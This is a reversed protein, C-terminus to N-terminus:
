ARCVAMAESQANAKTVGISWGFGPTGAKRDIAVAACQDKFYAILACLSKTSEPADRNARCKDLANSYATQTDDYNSAIGIAVGAKAIDAPRGLAVAGEALAPDTPFQCVMLFALGIISSVAFKSIGSKYRTM